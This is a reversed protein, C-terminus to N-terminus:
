THVFGRQPSLVEMREFIDVLANQSARVDKAALLLVSIGAFIVKAPSFVLSVGEGLTESFVYLVNVTPDLWKTLQEDSSQSRNLEQVQQQLVALISSPSNCAQLQTALPHALLDKKTHREYAKLTNNFILQFNSSSMATPHTQSM